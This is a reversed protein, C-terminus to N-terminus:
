TIFYTQQIQKKIYVFLEYDGHLGLGWFMGSPCQLTLGRPEVQTQQYSPHFILQVNCMGISDLKWFSLMLGYVVDHIAMVFMLRILKCERRHFNNTIENDKRAGYLM